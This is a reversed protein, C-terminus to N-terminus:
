QTVNTGVSEISKSFKYFSNFYLVCFNDLEELKTINNYCVIDLIIQLKWYIAVIKLAGGHGYFYDKKKCIM